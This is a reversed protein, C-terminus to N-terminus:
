KWWHREHKKPKEVVPVPIPAHLVVVPYYLLGKIVEEFEATYNGDVKFYIEKDGMAVPMSVRVWSGREGSSISIIFRPKGNVPMAATVRCFPELVQFPLPSFPHTLDVRYYYSQYFGSFLKVPEGMKPM